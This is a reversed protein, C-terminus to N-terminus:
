YITTPSSVVGLLSQGKTAQSFDTPRLSCFNIWENVKMWIFTSSPLLIVTSFLRQPKGMHASSAVVALM